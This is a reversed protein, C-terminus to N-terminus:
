RDLPRPTDPGRRFHYHYFAQMGVQEYLSRAGRNAQDVQLYIHRAGLDNGWGSIARLASRAGGQRRFEPRTAVCFVGLWDGELVGLATAVSEDGVSVLAFGLRGRVRTLVSHLAEAALPDMREAACYTSLWGRDAQDGVGAITGTGTGVRALVSDILAIFVAGDGVRDYGREALIADLEGPRSAPSIRFAPRLGRCEYYDEVRRVQEKLPLGVASGSHSLVSNSRHSMGATVRLQWGELMRIDAPPWARACLDELQRIMDNIM